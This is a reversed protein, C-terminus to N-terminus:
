SKRLLFDFSRPIRPNRGEKRGTVGDMFPVYDRAMQLAIVPKAIKFFTVVPCKTSTIKIPVIITYIPLFFLCAVQSM